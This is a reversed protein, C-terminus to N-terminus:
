GGIRHCERCMNFRRDRIHTAVNFIQGTKREWTIAVERPSPSGSEAIQSADGSEPLTEGALVGFSESITKQPFDTEPVASASEQENRFRRTEEMSGGEPRMEEVAGVPMDAGGTSTPLGRGIAIGLLLSAAAVLWVVTAANGRRVVTRADTPPVGPSLEDPTVLIGTLPEVERSAAGSEVKTTTLGVGSDGSMASAQLMSLIRQEMAVSPARLTLERIRSELDNM